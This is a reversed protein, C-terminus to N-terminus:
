PASESLPSVLFRLVADAVLLDALHGVRALRTERATRRAELVAALPTEGERYATSAMATVREASTLLEDDRALLQRSTGAVQRARALLATSEARAADLEAAARSRDARAMAIEGRQRNYLPLPISLGIVPLAGTEGGTPDGFEVGTLLNVGAFRSRRAAAIDLTAADLAANAAAVMPPSIGTASLADVPVALSDTLEIRPIDNLGLLSALDLLAGASAVSDAAAAADLRGAELRALEVDFDSADGADRRAIAIRLLEAADDADRRSLMARERAELARTYSTDVATATAARAVEWRIAAADRWAETARTAAGRSGFLGLPWEVEAHWRPVSRTWSASLAPDALTRAALLAGAARATDASAIRLAPGDALARSIAQQRSLAMPTQAALSVPLVLFVFRTLARLHHHM